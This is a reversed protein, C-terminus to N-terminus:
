EKQVGKRNILSFIFCFVLYIFIIMGSYGIIELYKELQNLNAPIRSLIVVIISFVLLFIGRNRIKFIRTLNDFASSFYARLTSELFPFWLLIFYLDVRELVPIKFIRPINFIPVTILKLFNEGFLGATVGFILIFFVMSILNAGIIWTITKERDTVKPYIFAILELGVFAFVANPISKLLPGIGAGGVPMLFTLHISDHILPVILAFGGILFVIIYSFWCLPKFGQWILYVTPLIILFSLLFQPILQLTFLVTLETFFRIAMITGYCLYLALIINILAGVWKGFLLPNIEIISKNSYRRLLLMVFVLIISTLIGTIFLSIWGDHGVEGALIRPLTVIGLGIQASMIYVAADKSTIRDRSKM